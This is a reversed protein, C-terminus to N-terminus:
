HVTPFCEILFMGVCWECWDGQVDAMEAVMTPSSAFILGPTMRDRYWKVAQCRPHIHLKGSVPHRWTPVQLDEM